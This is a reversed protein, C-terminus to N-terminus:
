DVQNWLIKNHFGLLMCCACILDLTGSRYLLLEHGDDAVIWIVRTNLQWLERKFCRPLESKNVCNWLAENKGRWETDYTHTFWFLHGVNFIIYRSDCQLNWMQTLLMNCALSTGSIDLQALVSVKRSQSTTSVQRDWSIVTTREAVGGLLREDFRCTCENTWQWVCTTSAPLQAPWEDNDQPFDSLHFFFSM